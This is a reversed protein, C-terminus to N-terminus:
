YSISIDPFFEIETLVVCFLIGNEPFICDRLQCSFLGIELVFNRSSICFPM